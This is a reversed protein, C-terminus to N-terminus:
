YTRLVCLGIYIQECDCRGVPSHEQLCMQRECSSSSLGCTAMHGHSDAVVLCVGEHDIHNVEGSECFGCEM